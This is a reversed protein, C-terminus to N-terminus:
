PAVTKKAQTSTAAKEKEYQVVSYEKAIAAREEPSLGQELELYDEMIEEAEDLTSANKLLTLRMCRNYGRTARNICGKNNTQCTGKQADYAANCPKNANNIRDASEKPTLPYTAFTTLLLGNLMLYKITNNM